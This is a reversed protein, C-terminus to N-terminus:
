WISASAGEDGSAALADLDGRLSLLPLLTLNKAEPFTSPLVNTMYMPRLFTLQDLNMMM